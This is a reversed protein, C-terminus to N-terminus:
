QTIILNWLEDLDDEVEQQTMPVADPVPPTINFFAALAQSYPDEVNLNDLARRIDALRFNIGEGVLNGDYGDLSVKTIEFDSLDLMLLKIIADADDGVLITEGAILQPCSESYSLTYGGEDDIDVDFDITGGTIYITLDSFMRPTVNSFLVEGADNVDVIPKLFKAVSEEVAAQSFLCAVGSGSSPTVTINRQQAPQLSTNKTAKKKIIIQGAM